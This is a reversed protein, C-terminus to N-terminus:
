HPPLVKNVLAILTTSETITARSKAITEVLDCNLERLASLSKRVAVRLKASEAYLSLQDPM